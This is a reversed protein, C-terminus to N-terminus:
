SSIEIKKFQNNNILAQIAKALNKKTWKFLDLKIGFEKEYVQQANDYQDIFLLMIILLKGYYFPQAVINNGGHFIAIKVTIM